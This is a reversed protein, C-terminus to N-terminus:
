WASGAGSSSSCLPCLYAESVLGREETILWYFELDGRRKHVGQRRRHLTCVATTLGQLGAPNFRRSNFSSSAFRLARSRSKVTFCVLTQM